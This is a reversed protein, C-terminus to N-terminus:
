QFVEAGRTRKIVLEAPKRPDLAERLKRMAEPSRVLMHQLQKDYEDIAVGLGVGICGQFHKAVTGAHFVCAYRGPRGDEPKQPYVRLDGNCLAWTNSWRAGNHPLMLYGGDPVCSRFPKSYHRKDPKFPAELTHLEPLGPVKLRGLTCDTGYHYRTLTVLPRDM